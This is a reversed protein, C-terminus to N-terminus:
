SNQVASEILQKIHTVRGKSKEICESLAEETFPSGGPKHVCCLEDDKVVITLIGTCLSEEDATPDALIIKSHFSSIKKLLYSVSHIELVYRIM